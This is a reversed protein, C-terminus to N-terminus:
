EDLEKSDTKVGSKTVDSKNMNQKLEEMTEKVSELLGNLSLIMEQTVAFGSLNNLGIITAQLMDYEEKNLHGDPVTNLIERLYHVSINVAEQFHQLNEIYKEKDPNRKRTQIVEQKSTEEENKRNKTNDM